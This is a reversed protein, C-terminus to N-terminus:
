LHKPKNKLHAVKIWNIIHSFNTILQSREGNYMGRRTANVCSVDQCPLGGMILDIQGYQKVLATVKEETIKRIDGLAQITVDQNSKKVVENCFFM